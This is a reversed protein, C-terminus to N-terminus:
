PPEASAAAGGVTGGAAGPAGGGDAALRGRHAGGGSGGARRRLPSCSAIPARRACSQECPEADGASRRVGRRAPTGHSSRAASKRFPRFGFPSLPGPLPCSPSRSWPHRIDTRHRAPPRQGAGTSGSVPVQSPLLQVIHGAPLRLAERHPGGEERRVARRRRVAPPPPRESPRGAEDRGDRDRGKWERGTGDRRESVM